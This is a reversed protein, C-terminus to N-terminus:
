CVVKHMTHWAISCWATGWALLFACLLRQVVWHVMYAGCAGGRRMLRRPCPPASRGSRGVQAVTCEELINYSNSTAKPTEAGEVSKDDPMLALRDMLVSLLKDAIHNAM